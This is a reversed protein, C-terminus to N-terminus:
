ATASSTVLAHEFTTSCNRNWLMPYLYQANTANWSCYSYINPKGCGMVVLTVMDSAGTNVLQYKVRAPAFITDHERVNILEVQQTGPVWLKLLGEGQLVGVNCADSLPKIGWMKHAQCHLPVKQVLNLEECDHAHIPTAAGPVLTQKWVQM